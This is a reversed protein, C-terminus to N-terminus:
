QDLYADVDFLEKPVAERASDADYVPRLATYSIEEIENERGNLHLILAKASNRGMDRPDRLVAVGVKGDVVAQLEDIQGGMGTVLVEDLLGDAELASMAGLGTNSNMGVIVDPDYALMVQETEAYAKERQFDAYGEYIVEYDFGQNAYEGMGDLVGQGREQSIESAVPGWLMVVKPNNNGQEMFYEAIWRGTAQGMQYHSYVSWNLIADDFPLPEEPPEYDTMLIKTGADAVAMLGPINQELSTPGMVMYDLNLNAMNELIDLMEDHRESSSPAAQFLQYELGEEDLGQRFGIELQGFLDQIDHQHSVFGIRLEEGEDSAAEDQGSAFLTAGTFVMALILTLIVIRKM